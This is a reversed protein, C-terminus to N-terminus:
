KFAESIDETCPGSLTITYIKFTAAASLINRWLHIRLRIDRGGPPPQYLISAGQADLGDPSGVQTIEPMGFSVFAWGPKLLRGGGFLEYDAKMGRTWTTFYSDLYGLYCEFSDDDAWRATACGECDEWIVGFTYATAYEFAQYITITRETKYNSTKISDSVVNSEGFENKLQFYVTQECAGNLLNGGPFRGPFVLEWNTWGSNVRYRYHTPPNGTNVYNFTVFLGDVVEAGNNLSFSTITPPIRLTVKGPVKQALEAQISRTSPPPTPSAPEQITFNRDSEDFVSGNSNEVRVKYDTGAQAWSYSGYSSGTNEVTWSRVVAGGKKLRITLSGSVGSTTWRVEHAANTYWMEGGNPSTITLSAPAAGASITFPRDSSDLIETQPKRIRIKFDTGPVARGGQYNGVVWSFSGGAVPVNDQITGVRVGGSFLLITVNGTLGSSRWTINQTSGLAWNEGGNPSTVMITQSYSLAAIAFLLVCASALKKINKGL